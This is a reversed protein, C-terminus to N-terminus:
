EVRRIDALRTEIRWEAGSHFLEGRVAVPEGVFELIQRNIAEAHPGTLVVLRRNGGADEAVLAPPIGGSICRAACDRHVKGEGPNMVGLYCKTDVIEGRLDVEGVLASGGSSASRARGSARISGPVIQIMLTGDREIRSGSFDAHMREWGAVLPAAGHKGPAVLLATRGSDLKALPVPHDSIVGSFTRAQGYEFSSNAFPRQAFVLVVGVGVVLLAIAFVVRKVYRATSRSARGFYGVYFDDSDSM